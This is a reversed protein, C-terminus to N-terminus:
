KGTPAAKDAAAKERAAAEDTLKRAADQAEQQVKYVTTEGMRKVYGQVPKPRDFKTKSKAAEAKAKNWADLASVYVQKASDVRNKLDKYRIAEWTVKQNLDKAEVVIWIVTEKKPPDIPKTVFPGTEAGWGGAGFALGLAVGAMWGAIARM